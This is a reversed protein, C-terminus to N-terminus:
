ATAKELRRVREALTKLLTATIAPEQKILKTFASRGVRMTLVETVAAVGASRPAGDLLAMEGFFDGSTLKVRKGSRPRAEATGDLVVYFADGSDGARIISAGAEYRRATALDAVRRLHRKSLDGFLPVQELVRVWERGM